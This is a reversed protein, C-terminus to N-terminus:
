RLHVHTYRLDHRPKGAQFLGAIEISEVEIDLTRDSMFLRGGTRIQVRGLADARTYSRDILVDQCGTGGGLGIVVDRSARICSSLPTLPSPLACDAATATRVTALWVMIVAAFVVILRTSTFRDQLRKRFV